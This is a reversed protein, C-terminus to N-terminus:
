VRIPCHETKSRLGHQIYRVNIKLNPFIPIFGIAVGAFSCLIGEIFIASVSNSHLAGFTMGVELGGIGGIIAGRRGVYVISVGILMFGSALFIGSIPFILLGLCIGFLGGCLAALVIWWGGSKFFKKNWFGNSFLKSAQWVSICCILISTLLTVSGCVIIVAQNKWFAHSVSQEVMSLKGRIVNLTDALQDEARSIIKDPYLESNLKQPEPHKIGALGSKTKIRVSYSRATNIANFIVLSYIYCNVDVM